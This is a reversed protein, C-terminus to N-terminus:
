SIFDFGTVFFCQRSAASLSRYHLIYVFAIHRSSRLQCSHTLTLDFSKRVFQDYVLYRQAHTVYIQSVREINCIDLM